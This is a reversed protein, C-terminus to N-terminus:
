TAESHSTGSFATASHVLRQVRALTSASALVITIATRVIVVNALVGRGWSWCRRGRTIEITTATVVLWSMSTLAVVVALLVVVAAIVVPRNAFTARCRDHSILRVVPAISILWVTSSVDISIRRSGRAEGQLPALLAACRILLAAAYGICWAMALTPLSGVANLRAPLDCVIVVHMELLRLAAQCFM